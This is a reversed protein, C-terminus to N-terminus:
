ERESVREIEADIENQQDLKYCHMNHHGNHHVRQEAQGVLLGQLHAATKRSIRVGYMHKGSKKIAQQLQLTADKGSKLRQPHERIGFPVERIVIHSGQM